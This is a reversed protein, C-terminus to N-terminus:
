KPSEQGRKKRILQAPSASYTLSLGVGKMNVYNKANVTSYGFANIDVSGSLAYSVAGGLQLYDEREVQDHVLFQESTRDPWDIPVRWGGHTKQWFGLFRVTFAPGILYGADFSVQSRDHSIGDVKEPKGYLYRLQVYANPLLPDLLRGAVVGVQGEVLKRGAAPHGYYEYSHSPVVLAAFPTVITSGHTARFRVETRFDQFTDHWAGDDLNTHGAVTPHPFSGDYKSIVLPPLTLRVALRDTVGYSLDAVVNNWIMDGPAATNGQYDVHHTAFTRSFGLSLSAEGKPPLWAQQARATGAPVLALGGFALLVFANTRPM